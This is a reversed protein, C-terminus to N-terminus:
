GKLRALATLAQDAMQKRGMTADCPLGLLRFASALVPRAQLSTGAMGAAALRLAALQPASLRRPRLPAPSRPNEGFIPFLEPEVPEAVAVPAVLSPEDVQPDRGPPEAAPERRRRAGEARCATSCYRGRGEVPESCIVCDLPTM